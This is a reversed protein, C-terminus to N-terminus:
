VHLLCQCKQVMAAYKDLTDNNVGIGKLKSKFFNVKLDSAVEFYRLILKLM